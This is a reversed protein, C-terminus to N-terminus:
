KRTLCLLKVLWVPVNGFNSIVSVFDKKASFYTTKPNNLCTVLRYEDILLGPIKIKEGNNFVVEAINFIAPGKGWMGYINMESIESRKYEVSDNPYGFRFVDSNNLYEFCLDRHTLYYKVTIYEHLVAFVLFFIFMLLIFLPTNDSHRSPLQTQLVYLAIFVVFLIILPLLRKVMRNGNLQYTKFPTEAM